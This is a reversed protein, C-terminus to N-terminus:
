GKILEKLNKFRDTLDKDSITPKEFNIVVDENFAKSDIMIDKFEIIFPQEEVYEIKVRTTIEQGDGSDFKANCSVISTNEYTDKFIPKKISIVQAGDQIPFNSSVIENWAKKLLSKIIKSSYTEIDLAEYAREFSNCRILNVTSAELDGRHHTHVEDRSMLITHDNERAIRTAIEWIILDRMEDSKIEPPHPNERLCARRHANEYDTMTPNEIDCSLGIDKVLQILDPNKILNDINFNSIPIQYKSFMSLANKFKSKEEDVFKSQKKDFELKSTLPIIIEHNNDKCKNLFTTLKNHLETILSDAYLLDSNFIIKM